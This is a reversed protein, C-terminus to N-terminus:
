ARLLRLANATVLVTAGTDALIAPWLGTIGAITTVLFVAKLGLAIAVNQRINGLTARSLSVLAAVDGVRDNLVAADATELAADTGGGMAIGVSAAALAPADNIGDGVMAVPGMEKLAAIDALKDQPLLEAKVDLGLESAVAEGTRRNDGTLMVSRVGLKRLAAIGAAADARPEDRVAIAGLAEAGRVVIVVTKGGAELAAVAREAEPSLRASEAAHRPSAVLVTQGMVTAQVAKGPIARADRTPRLPVGDASARDLIARAIPHSSGNEVAAALGLLSRESADPAFVLIDSVRPRGATLTGTKDFAVTRVRGIVELAAGGKVLLGRRAGAALGSAIAAPTSLVLACPCAILLLALGRYVWTGWDAGLLLPPVIAVAAAFVFAIPTYVASFRDIFRATPSKSAQAEEVLHLIRAVTNDAATKTVRVQLAGDANVSGAYVPDGVEKPKPVSEGTIPSEDLSSAGDTIVGDAPVRDGPRVVVVQGIALSAAPVERITGDAEDVVRAIKPVLAALAKIGARARGAAVVELMEGVTFLLVVIAAEEAAHIALAGATAVSMLMEISFPTGAFAAVAARRGYYALGVLAGPWYAYEGAVGPAIREVLFGAAFLAGILIGLLAKRSRWVPPEPEAATEAPPAGGSAQAMALDAATPLPAVGYGLREIRGELETRPTAAEDLALDLVQSGYNVRVNAVGPLRSVATEIKGACTPCDMGKVRYRLAQPGNTPFSTRDAGAAQNM